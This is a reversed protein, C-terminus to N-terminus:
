PLSTTLAKLSILPPSFIVKTPSFLDIVIVLGSPVVLCAFAQYLSPSICIFKFLSTDAFSNTICSIVCENSPVLWYLMNFSIAIVSNLNIVSSSPVVTYSLSYELNSSFYLSTYLPSLKVSAISFSISALKVLLYKSLSAFM